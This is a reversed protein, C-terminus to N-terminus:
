RQALETLDLAFPYRESVVSDAVQLELTDPQGKISLAIAEDGFWNRMKAPDSVLEGGRLARVAVLRNVDGQYSLVLEGATMKTVQIQLTEDEWVAGVDFDLSEIQITEAVNLLLEGRLASVANLKLERDRITVDGKIWPKEEDPQYEGNMWYGGDHAFSFFTTKDLRQPTSDAGQVDILRVGGAGLPGVLPVQNSLYVSVDVGLGFSGDFDLRQFALTAPGATTELQPKSWVYSVSPAEAASLAEKVEAVSTEPFTKAGFLTGNSVPWVSSVRFPYRKQESATALVVKISAIEGHYDVSASQGEGFFSGGWMASGSSLPKNDKNLAYVHLLKDVDGSVRYQLSHKGADMFRIRVGDRELVKGGLPQQLIATEVATAQRYDIYGELSSIDSVKSGAKLVVEKSGSSSTYPVPEGDIYTTGSITNGIDAPELNKDTGCEVAPLLSGGEADSVRSLHISAASGRTPVNPLNYSQVKLALALQQEDTLSLSEVGVGFPGVETAPTFSSNFESYDGYPKLQGASAITAFVPPNDDLREEAPPEGSTSFMGSFVSSVWNSMDRQLHRDFFMTAGVSDGSQTVELRDYLSVVEPWNKEADERWEKVREDFAKYSTNIFEKDQSFVQTRLEVGPPVAVPELDIFVGEAPQAAAGVGRLMMGTMGSAAEGINEPAFVALSALQNASVQRWRDLKQSAPSKKEFRMLLQEISAPDGVLVRDDAIVARLTQGPECTNESVRQFLLGDDQERVVQYREAMWNKISAPTFAGTLVLAGGSHKASRTGALWVHSVQERLDIGARELSQWVGDNREGVAPLDAEDGALAELSVARAVDIHALAYTDPSALAVAWREQQADLQAGQWLPRTIWLVFVLLAIAVLVLAGLLVYVKNRRRIGPSRSAESALTPEEAYAGTVASDNNDATNEELSEAVAIDAEAEAQESDRGAEDDASTAPSVGGDAPEEANASIMLVAGANAFAKRWKYAEEDTAVKKVVVPKGSFLMRQIQAEDRKLLKALQRIVQPRDFGTILDGAFVLKIM